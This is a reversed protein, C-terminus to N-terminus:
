KGTHARQSHATKERQRNVRRRALDLLSRAMAEENTTVNAAHRRYILADDAVRRLAFRADMLRMHFDSDERLHMNPTFGRVARVAAARYLASGILDPIHKGDMADAGATRVADDEFRVRVYGCAIDPGSPHSLARCLAQHRGDPWLDDHDLFAIYKGRAADIGTNRAVSVGQGGSQLRVLRPDTLDALIDPTADRSGDDVVIVEDSPELQSLVSAIAQAVFNEGNKVPIIVSTLPDSKM